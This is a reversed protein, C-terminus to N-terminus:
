PRPLRGAVKLSLTVVPFLPCPTRQPQPGLRAERSLLSRYPRPVKLIQLTSQTVKNRYIYYWGKGNHEGFKKGDTIVEGNHELTIVVTPTHPHGNEGRGPHFSDVSFYGCTETPHQTDAQIVAFALM